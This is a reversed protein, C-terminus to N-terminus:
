LVGLGDRALAAQLEAQLRTISAELESVRRTSCQAELFRRNSELAHQRAEAHRVFERSSVVRAGARELDAALFGAWAAMENM